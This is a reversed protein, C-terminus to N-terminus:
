RGLYAATATAARAESGPDDGDGGCPLGAFLRTSLLSNQQLSDPGQM